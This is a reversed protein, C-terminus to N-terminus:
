VNKYERVFPSLVLGGVLGSLLGGLHAANDVGPVLGFLLNAGIFFAIDKLLSKVNPSSYARTLLFGALAGFLGMIAGSAGVGVVPSEHSLVSSISAIVGSVVYVGLYQTRSVRVELIIGAIILSGMNALLHMAGSHVYTSTLLRWWEGARVLPAYCAGWKLLDYAQFNVFGLGCFVMILFVVVNAYILIPTIFFGEHPTIARMNKLWEKRATRDPRGAKICEVEETNIQPIISLIFWIVIAVVIAILLYMGRSGSREAYPQSMGHLIVGDPVIYQGDNLAICYNEYDESTSEIREFCAFATYDREKASIQSRHVFVEFVEQKHELSLKNSIRDRYLVGLWASPPHSVTDAATAYIPLVAYLYLNLDESYRDGVEFTAYFHINTTDVHYTNTEYYRTPAHSSSRIQAITELRTLQGTATTMYMQAIVTPITMGIWAIILYPFTEKLRLVKLRPYVCLVTVVGAAVMPLIFGTITDRLHVVDFRVSLLWHLLTYCTVLGILAILFPKFVLNLKDKM